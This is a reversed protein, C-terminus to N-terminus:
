PLLNVDKDKMYLARILVKKTRLHPLGPQLYILNSPDILKVKEISM